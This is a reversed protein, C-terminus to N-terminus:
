PRHGHTTGPTLVEELFLLTKSFNRQWYPWEHGGACEEFVHAIGEALLAEHLARNASLLPDSVGCDFRLPPLAAGNRRFWYMPDADEQIAGQHIMPPEATFDLMQAPHTIASHASIGAVKEAYKAGLRLAGYGGMSLGALFLPSSTNVCPAVEMAAAAVDRMIWSEYDAADHRLYGSGDGWLGDSPMALVFPRVQGMQISALATRHAGAKMTWVWHSGYVGHLLILLPVGSQGMCQPPVFFSIDGRRQLAPSQVTVVRVHELEFQPDSIEITRFYSM